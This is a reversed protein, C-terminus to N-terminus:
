VVSSLVSLTVELTIYKNYVSVAGVETMPINGTMNGFMWFTFGLESDARYYLIIYLYCLCFACMMSDFISFIAVPEM